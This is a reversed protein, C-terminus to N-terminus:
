LAHSSAIQAIILDVIREQQPVGDQICPIGNYLHPRRCLSFDDLSLEVSRKVRPCPKKQRTSIERAVVATCDVSVRGCAQKCLIHINGSMVGRKETPELEIQSRFM